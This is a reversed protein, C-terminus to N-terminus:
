LSDVETNAIHLDLRLRDEKNLVDNAQIGKIHHIGFRALHTVFEQQSEFRKDPKSPDSNPYLYANTYKIGLKRLLRWAEAWNIDGIDRPNIKPADGLGVVNAYRVWQDIADSEDGSLCKLAEPLGYACLHKRLEQLSSFYKMGEVTSSDKAPPNENGPLCFHKGGYFTFGFNDKLLNWADQNAM